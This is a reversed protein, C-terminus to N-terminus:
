NRLSHTHYMLAVPHKLVTNFNLPTEQSLKYSYRQEM